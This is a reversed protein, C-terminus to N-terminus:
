RWWFVSGMAVHLPRRATRCHWRIVHLPVLPTDMSFDHGSVIGGERVKPIWAALDFGVNDDHMGDIFVLDISADAFLKFAQLSSMELLQATNGHTNEQAFAERNLNLCDDETQAAKGDDASGM